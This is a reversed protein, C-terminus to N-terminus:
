GAADQLPTAVPSEEGSEGAWRLGRIAPLTLVVSNAIMEWAVGVMLVTSISTLDALPGALALGLLGVSYAGFSVYSMVRSLAEPRIHRQVTTM